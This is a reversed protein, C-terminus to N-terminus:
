LLEQIYRIDISQEFLLTTFSHRLAEIRKLFKNKEIVAKDLEKRIREEEQKIRAVQEFPPVYKLSKELEALIGDTVFSVYTKKTIIMHDLVPCNVIRGVQIMRDTIDLDNDSPKTEGSPHNHVLVIKVARKQLAFSFVDMPEVVASSVSGLSILEIFLIKHNVALGVIWLHERDLDIKDERMLIDRMIVYLDKAYIVKIKQNEKLPVKM